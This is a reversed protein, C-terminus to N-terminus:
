RKLEESLKTYFIRTEEDYLKTESALDEYGSALINLESKIVENVRRSAVQPTMGHEELAKILDQRNWTRRQMKVGFNTSLTM